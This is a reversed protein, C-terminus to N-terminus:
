NVEKAKTEDHLSRPMRYGVPTAGTLFIAEMTVEVRRPV